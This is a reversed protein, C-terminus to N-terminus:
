ISTGHQALTPVSVRARALALSLVYENGLTLEWPERRGTDTTMGVPTPEWAPAGVPALEWAPAGFDLPPTEASVNTM